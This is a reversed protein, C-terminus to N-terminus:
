NQYGTKQVLRYWVHVLGTGSMYWAIYWFCFTGFFIRYVRNPSQYLQSTGKQYLRKTSKPADRLAHVPTGTMSGVM